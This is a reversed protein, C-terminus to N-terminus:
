RKKLKLREKNSGENSVGDINTRNREVGTKSVSISGAEIYTDEIDSLPYGASGSVFRKLIRALFQRNSFLEKLTGDYKAKGEETSAIMNGIENM